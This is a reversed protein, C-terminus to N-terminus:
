HTKLETLLNKNPHRKNIDDNDTTLDQELDHYESQEGEVIHGNDMILGGLGAAAETMLSSAIMIIHHSPFTCFQLLFINQKKRRRRKPYIKSPHTLSICLNSSKLGEQGEILGHQM